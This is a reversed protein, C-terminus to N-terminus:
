GAVRPRRPRLRRDDGAPRLPDAGGQAARVVRANGLEAALADAEAVSRNCHILLHWGDESLARCLAAGIRKAGGTVIATKPGPWESSSM